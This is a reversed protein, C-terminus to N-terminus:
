QMKKENNKTKKNKCDGVIHGPEHCHFCSIYKRRQSISSKRIEDRHASQMRAFYLKKTENNQKQNQKKNKNVEKCIM